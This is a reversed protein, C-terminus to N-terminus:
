TTTHMEKLLAEYKEKERTHHDAHASFGRALRAHHEIWLSCNRRRLAEGYLRESAAWLEALANEEARRDPPAM